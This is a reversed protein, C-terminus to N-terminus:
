LKLFCVQVVSASTSTSTGSAYHNVVFSSCLNNEFVINMLTEWSNHKPPVGQLIYMALFELSFFTNVGCYETIWNSLLPRNLKFKSVYIYNLITIKRGDMSLNRRLLLWWIKIVQKNAKFVYFPIQRFM